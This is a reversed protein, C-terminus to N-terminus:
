GRPGRRPPSSDLAEAIEECLRAAAAPPDPADRIPRGVVLLDAGDAIAQAPTGTRVQDDNDVRAWQPRVGPVVLLPDHGHLRRLRPVEQPSCVLGHCAADMARRALKVALEGPERFWPALESMAAPNLSTLVTVALVRTDDGAAGAAARLMESGGQAHVTVLGAGLRSAQRMAGAVTAPIDHLKLDLFIGCDPAADRVRAVSDPGLATFLELGIKFWGVTGGLLSACSLASDLDPVDLPFVLRERPSLAAAPAATETAEPM